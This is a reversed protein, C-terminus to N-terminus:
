DKLSEFQRKPFDIEQNEWYTTPETIPDLIIFKEDLRNQLEEIKNEFQKVQEETELEDLHIKENIKLRRQRISARQKKSPKPYGLFQVTKYDKYYYLLNIKADCYKCKVRGGPQQHKQEVLYKSMCDWHSIKNCCPTSAM